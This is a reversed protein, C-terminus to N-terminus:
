FLGLTACRLVEPGQQVQLRFRCICVLRNRRILTLLGASRGLIEYFSGASDRFRGSTLSALADCSPLSDSLTVARGGASLAHLKDAGALM